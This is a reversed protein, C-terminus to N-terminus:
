LIGVLINETEKKAVYLENSSQKKLEKAKFINSKIQKIIRKQIKLSPLPILIKSLEKETISPFTVTNERQKIQNLSFISRLFYFLYEKYISTDLERIVAFGTSAIFGNQKQDILSIAGRSPRVTSIIIDGERVILKARTPIKKKNIFNLNKIKGTKIDVNSIEIYPFNGEFNGNQDWKEKSFSTLDGLKAYDMCKINKVFKFESQYYLPDLRYDLENSLLKFTMKNNKVPLEIGLEKSIIHNFTLLEKNILLENNTIIKNADEIIKIIKKQIEIPPVPIKINEIDSIYLKPKGAAGKINEEIQLSGYETNLFILVYNPDIKSEDIKIIAVQNDAFAHNKSEYILSNGVFKEGTLSILLDGKKIQANKSKDFYEQSVYSSKKFSLTGNLINSAKIVKVGKKSYKPIKGSSIDKKVLNLVKFVNFSTKLLNKINKKYKPLYYHVDFRYSSKLDNNSISFTRLKPKISYGNSKYFSNMKIM